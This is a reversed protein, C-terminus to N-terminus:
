VINETLDRDSEDAYENLCFTDMCREIDMMINPIVQREYKQQPIEGWYKKSM